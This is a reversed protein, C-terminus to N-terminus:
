GATDAQPALMPSSKRVAAEGEIRIPAVNAITAQPLGQLNASFEAYTPTDPIQHVRIHRIAMPERQSLLGITNVGANLYFLFPENYTGMADQIVSEAWMPFEIQTPRIDNGQNDQQIEAHQNVWTRRFEIPSAEFFPSEGNIFIARQVDSSRGPTAFYLVSINYLGSQAVSVQWEVLGEEDTLISIGPQGEFDPLLEINMGEALTYDAANIIYEAAPRTAHAHDILYETFHYRDSFTALTTIHHNLREYPDISEVAAANATSFTSFTPVFSTLLITALFVATIKQTIRKFFKKNSM